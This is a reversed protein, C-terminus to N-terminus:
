KMNLHHRVQEPLDRISIPKAIYGDCGAALAKERDGRMAHATLAIVPIHRFTASSKLRRAVEYGDIVPLSIDLLVLDPRERAVKDLAEEGTTAETTAYGKDRLVKAALERNDANDDVILINRTM